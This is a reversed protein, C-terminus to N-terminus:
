PESERSRVRREAKTGPVPVQETWSDPGLGILPLSRLWAAPRTFARGNALYVTEYLLGSGSSAVESTGHKM